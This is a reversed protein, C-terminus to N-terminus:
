TAGDKPRLFRHNGIEAVVVADWHPSALRPNFYLVAGHTIDTDRGCAEAWARIASRAAPQDQHSKAMRVRGVYGSNWCSFQRARLVTGVATGDSAYRQRMRNRIVEAVALQGVYPEGAAEGIITLIAWTDDPVLPTM